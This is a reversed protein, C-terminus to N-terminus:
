GAYYVLLIAGEGVFGIDLFAVIQGVVEIKPLVSTECGKASTMTSHTCHSSVHWADLQNANYIPPTIYSISALGPPLNVNETELQGGAENM